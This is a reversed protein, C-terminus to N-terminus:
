FVAEAASAKRVMSWGHLLLALLLSIALGIIAGAPLALVAAKVWNAMATLPNGPLRELARELLGQGVFVFMWIGWVVWFGAKKYRKVVAGAWFGVIVIALSILPLSWFPLDVFSDFPLNAKNAVLKGVMKWLRGVEMLVSVVVWYVLLVAPVYFKRLAGFSLAMNFQVSISFIIFILSMLGVIMWHVLSGIDPVVAQEVGDVMSTFNGTVAVVNFFIVMLLAGGFSLAAMMALEQKKLKLQRKIEKLM